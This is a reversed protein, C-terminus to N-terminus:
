LSGCELTFAGARLCVCLIFACFPVYKVKARVTDWTKQRVSSGMVIARAM